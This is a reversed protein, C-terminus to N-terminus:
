KELRVLLFKVMLAHGSHVQPVHCMIYVDPASEM